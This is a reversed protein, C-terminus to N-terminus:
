WALCCGSLALNGPELGHKEQPPALYPWDTESRLPARRHTFRGHTYAVREGDIAAEDM